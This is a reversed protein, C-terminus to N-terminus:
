SHYFGVWFFNFAQKLVAAINALNATLDPEHGILSKIQPLLSIYIKEKSVQKPYAINENM